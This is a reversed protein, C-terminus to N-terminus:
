PTSELNMYRALTITVTRGDVPASTTVRVRMLGAWDDKGPSRVIQSRVGPWLRAADEKSLARGTAAISDLQAEGAAICQRRTWQYASFTRFSGQAAGFGAILIGLVVVSIVVEALTWGGRPTGRRAPNTTSRRITTCEIM